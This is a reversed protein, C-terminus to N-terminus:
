AAADGEGKPRMIRLIMYALPIKAWLIAIDAITSELIVRKFTVESVWHDVSHDAMMVTGVIVAVWTLLYAWTVTKRYYFMVPLAFTTAIGSVAPIWHSAESGPPHIRLHLLLGGLSMLFLSLIPALVGKKSM